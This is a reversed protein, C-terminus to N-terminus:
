FAVPTVYDQSDNARFSHTAESAMELSTQFHMCCSPLSSCIGQKHSTTSANEECLALSFVMALWAVCCIVSLLQRSQDLEVGVVIKISDGSGSCCHKVADPRAAGAIKLHASEQM